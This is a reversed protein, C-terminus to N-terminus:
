GVARSRRNRLHGLGSIGLIALGAMTLTAGGEGVPVLNPHAVNVNIATREIENGASDHLTLAFSYEGASAPNFPVGNTAGLFGFGLNFSDQYDFVINADGVALGINLFTDVNNGAAPNTDYYLRVVPGLPFLFPINDEILDSIALYFGFNWRAYSAPVDGGSLAQFTGAGDNTVAPNAFREHATLGLVVANNGITAASTAVSHNPIGTGGFTAGPLPGFSEYAPTIVIGMAAPLSMAGMAAGM